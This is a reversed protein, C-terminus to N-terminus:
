DLHFTVLTPGFFMPEERVEQVTFRGAGHLEMGADFAAWVDPYFARVEDDRVLAVDDDHAADPQAELFARFAKYDVVAEEDLLRTEIM